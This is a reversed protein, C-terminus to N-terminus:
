NMGRRSVLLFVLITLHPNQGTSSCTNLVHLARLETGPFLLFCLPSAMSLLEFHFLTVVPQSLQRTPHHPRRDLERQTSYNSGFTPGKIWLEIGTVCNFHASCRGGSPLVPLSGISGVMDFLGRFHVSLRGM